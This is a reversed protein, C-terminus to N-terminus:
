RSIETRSRADKKRVRSVANPGYTFRRTFATVATARALHAEGDPGDALVGILESPGHIGDSVRRPDVPGM